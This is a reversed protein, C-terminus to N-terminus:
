AESATGKGSNQRGQTPYWELLVEALASRTVVGVPSGTRTETVLLADPSGSSFATVV